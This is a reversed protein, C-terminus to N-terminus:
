ALRRWTVAEPYQSRTLSLSVEYRVGASGEESEHAGITWHLEEGSPGGPAPGLLLNHPEHPNAHPVLPYVCSGWSGECLIQFSEYGAVGVQVIYEYSKGNWTMEQSHMWGDWSGVMCYRPRRMLMQEDISPEEHRELRWSIRKADLGNELTRSFEILFVDGAKGHLSWAFDQGESDPGRAAGSGGRDGPVAPHFVQRRDKNRVIQFDDGGRLLRVEKTYLGATTDSRELEEYGWANFGGTLYYKGEIVQNTLSQLALSTMPQEPGGIKEWNVARWKGAINLTVLYRDGIGAATEYITDVSGKKYLDLARPEQKRGDAPQESGDQVAVLRVRGDIQWNYGAAGTNPGYASSGSGGKAVGPHLVLTPDGDYCIQFEEFRNIGLTVVYSFVGASEKKMPEPEAWANWTGAIYYGSPPEPFDEGGGGPWFVMPEYPVCPRTPSIRQPDVGCSCIATGMTGGWGISMVSALSSKTSFLVADSAIFMNGELMDDMQPNIAALHNCPQWWGYAQTYLMKVLSTVASGQISHGYNSKVAALALPIRADSCCVKSISAVEVADNMMQGDAMCEVADLSCPSVLAQRCAEIILLQEAPGHPTGLNTQLGAHNIKVSGLAGLYYRNEDIISVGEVKETLNDVALATGSEGKVWGTASQDFSLCRGLPSIQGLGVRHIWTLPTLVMCIGMCMSMTANTKREDLAVCGTELAALGSSADTDFQVSPGNMGFVFSFRNAMISGAQGTGASRQECGGAEEPGQDVMPWESLHCGVYVATLSTLLNKVTRGANALSVYGIEMIQRQMPDMGKTEAPSIRFFKADFLEMGDCLSVHRTNVKFYKWGDPDDSYYQGHDWRNYPVETIIDVGANLSFAFAETDWAGGIKTGVGRVAYQQEKHYVHEVAYKWRSDLEEFTDPNEVAAELKNMAWADLTEAIPIRPPEYAVGQGSNRGHNQLFCSLAYSGGGPVSHKHWLADARLVVMMGPETQVRHVNSEEDFPTMELTGQGPGLFLIVM